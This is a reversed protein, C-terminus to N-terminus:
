LLVPNRHTLRLGTRRTGIYLRTRMQVLKTLRRTLSLFENRAGTGIPNYYRWLFKESSWCLYRPKRKGPLGSPFSLFITGAWTLFRGGLETRRPMLWDFKEFLGAQTVRVYRITLTKFEPFIAGSLLECQFRNYYLLLGINTRKLTKLSNLFYCSLSLILTIEGLTYQM